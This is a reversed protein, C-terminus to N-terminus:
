AVKMAAMMVVWHEVLLVVMQEVKLVVLLVVKLGVKLDALYVVLYAVM